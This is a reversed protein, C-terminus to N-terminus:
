SRNGFLIRNILGVNKRKTLKEFDSLCNGLTSYRKAIGNKLVTSVEEQSLLNPATRFSEKYCMKELIEYWGKPLNVHNPLPHTLQLNTFVSPNPHTLPLKDAFLKWIIIGLAFQDTRHDVLDLHNLVLEPAAYGLPFLTSRKNEISLNLAMGFDILSVNLEEGFKEVLINSPKLDCHIINNEHLFELTPIIERLISLLTATRKRSAIKKWFVNLTEGKLYSKVLTINEEDEFFDLTEPLSSHQFSFGAEKRLQAQVLSNDPTKFCTKLVCFELNARNQALYVEGFKRNKQNGLKKIREYNDLIGAM